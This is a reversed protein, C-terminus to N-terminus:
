REARKWVYKFFLFGVAILFFGVVTAIAAAEGMNFSKFAKRYILVPLTMTSNVPGGQTTMWIIAFTNFNWVFGFFFVFGIMSGVMPFILYRFIQWFNAGDIKIADYLESSITQLAALMLLTGFPIFQWSSIVMLTPLANTMSGLFNIPAQFLGSGVLIKNALGLQPELIWRTMMAVGVVPAIWPILIISRVINGGRFKKNLLLALGLPISLQLILCGVTWILSNRVGIRFVEDKFISVYNKIGSFEMKGFGFRTTFFSIHIVRIFPYILFIIILLLIPSLFLLGKISNKKQM